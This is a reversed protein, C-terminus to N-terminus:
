VLLIFITDKNSVGGFINESDPSWTSHQIKVRKSNSGRKQYQDRLRAIEVASLSPKNQTSARGWNGRKIVCKVVCKIAYPRTRSAPRISAGLEDVNSPPPSKADSKFPTITNKMGWKTSQESKEFSWNTEKMKLESRKEWISLDDREKERERRERERVLITINLRCSLYEEEKEDKWKGIECARKERWM